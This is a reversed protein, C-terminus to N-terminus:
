IFVAECRLETLVHVDANDLSLCLMAATELQEQMMLTFEVHM